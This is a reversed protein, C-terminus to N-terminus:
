DAKSRGRSLRQSRSPAPSGQASATAGAQGSKDKGRRGQRRGQVNPSAPEESALLTSDAEVAAAAAAATPGSQSSSSLSSGPEDVAGETWPPAEGTSGGICEGEPADLSTEASGAGGTDEVICPQRQRGSSQSSQRPTRRPSADEAAPGRHSCCCLVQRTSAVITAMTFRLLPLVLRGLVVDGAVMSLALILPTGLRLVAGVYQVSTTAEWLMAMVWFALKKSYFEESKHHITDAADVAAFLWVAISIAQGLWSVVRFCLWTALFTVAGIGAVALGILWLKQLIFKMIRMSGGLSAMNWTGMRVAALVNLGRAGLFGALRELVGSHALLGRLLQNFFLSGQWVELWILLAIMARHMEVEARQREAPKLNPLWQPVVPLAAQLLALLPWCAWYSLCLRRFLATKPGQPSNPPTASRSFWSGREVGRQQSSRSYDGCSLALLSLVTPVLKLLVDICWSLWDHPIQLCGQWLFPGAVLISGHALVKLLKSGYNRFVQVILLAAYGAASTAVVVMKHKGSMKSWMASCWIVMDIMFPLFFHIWARIMRVSVGAFEDTVFLAKLGRSRTKDLALQGEVLLVQWLLWGIWVSAVLASSRPRRIVVYRFIAVTGLACITWAGLDPILETFDPCTRAPLNMFGSKAGACKALTLARGYLSSDPDAGGDTGNPLWVDMGEGNRSSWREADEM